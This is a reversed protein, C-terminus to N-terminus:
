PTLSDLVKKFIGKIKSPTLPLGEQTDALGYICLGLATSWEPNTIAQERLSSTAGTIALSYDKGIPISGIKSPLRLAEKAFGAIGLLSTGGGTLIIGAPLLGDRNIKKLHNETFEFIDNLRSEIINEQKKKSVTNSENGYTLKIQDAEELTVQLGISLDYTIRSSGLPFVELAVPVGEEYVVLSSTSAGINLIACGVEREERTSSALSFATPGSVIDELIVNNEELVKAFDNLHQALSLIFVTEIEFKTGKMGIARGFVPAGDVKVMTQFHHIIKKNNLVNGLTEECKEVARKIDLETLEGDAKSIPISGSKTKHASLGIGQISLYARGIETDSNKEALSITEKLARSTESSDVIFGRRMGSSKKSTLSLVNLGSGDSKREVVAVKITATGIDIGTIIDRHKAM